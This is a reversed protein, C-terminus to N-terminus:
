VSNGCGNLASNVAQIILAIDVEAGSPVGDQCASPQANGLAINVLTIVEDVTV